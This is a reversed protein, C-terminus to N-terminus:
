HQLSENIAYRGWATQRSTSQASRTCSRSLRPTSTASSLMGVVCVVSVVLVRCCLVATLAAVLHIKASLHVGAPPTRKQTLLRGRHPRQRKTSEISSHDNAVHRCTVSKCASLLSVSLM